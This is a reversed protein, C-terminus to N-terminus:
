NSFHILFYYNELDVIEMEGKPNWLKLLRNHLFRLGIQKGLLKDILARKWPQCAAKTEEKSVSIVPFM